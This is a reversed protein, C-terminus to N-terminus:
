AFSDPDDDRWSRSPRRPLVVRARARQGEDKADVQDLISALALVAPLVLLMTYVM